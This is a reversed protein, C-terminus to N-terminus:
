DFRKIIRCPNGVALVKDPISKTVVSGAGITTDSGIKVGPCIVANGGIWVNDGIVVESSYETKNKRKEPDTPHLATYIHVGPGLQVNDGIKVKNVDLIVCGFNAYFKEGVSINYGYDCQFPPEIYFENSTKDLLQKLTEKRKVGESPKSNNFTYLLKRARLRDAALKKDMPDYFEGNLMKEKESM